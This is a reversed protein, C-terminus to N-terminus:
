APNFGVLAGSLGPGPDYHSIISVGPMCISMSIVSRVILVVLRPWTEQGAYENNM